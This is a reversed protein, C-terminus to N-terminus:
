SASWGVFKVSTSAGKYTENNHTPGTTSLTHVTGNLINVDNAPGDANGNNVNYTVKYKIALVDPGNGTTDYGWVAYVTENSDEILVTEIMSTPLVDDKTLIAIVRSSSWGVFKVDVLTGNSEKDVQEHTPKKTTNLPYEMQTLLNIDPDPGSGAIGGNIDYFISFKEELVDPIGNDNADEGWVAYVTVDENTLTVDDVFIPPIDDKDLVVNIISDDLTWGIFLTLTTHTYEPNISADLTHTGAPLNSVVIPDYINDISGGNLDYTLNYKPGSAYVFYVTGDNSVAESSPNGASLGSTTTTIPFDSGSLPLYAAEWMWGVASYGSLTPITKSYAGSSQLVSTTTTGPPNILTGNVDVYKETITYGEEYIFYVTLDGTVPNIIAPTGPYYTGSGLEGIRYGMPAYGSITPHIKSYAPSERLVFTVREGDLETESMDVYRETINWTAKNDGYAVIDYNNIPHDFDFVSSSTTRINPYTAVLTPIDSIVAGNAAYNSHFVAPASIDLNAYTQDITWIGGGDGEAINGSITGSTIVMVMSPNSLYVGGGSWSATNNIISGGALTLQGGGARVGGGSWATNGEITVNAPIVLDSKTFIGGGGDAENERIFINGTPAFTLSGSDNVFIGGGFNSAVNEVISGGTMTMMGATETALDPGEIFVGAGNTAENNRIEGGTMTMTGASGIFVGSGNFAKNNRITGGNMEFIGNAGVAVGGGYDYFSGNTSSNQIVAGDNMILKAIRGMFFHGSINVGGGQTDNGNGDLIINELTLQGEVTFHRAGTTQTITWQNGTDSTLTIIKNAPITIATYSGDTMDADNVTAVITYPNDDATCLRVADALLHETGILTGAAVNGDYVRYRELGNIDYNNLPHDYISSSTTRITPYLILANAPPVSPGYGALNDRFVVTDSINLSAYTDDTTWIGGGSKDATNNSITGNTINLTSTAIIGGGNEEATNNNITGNTITLTTAIIGGGNLTATNDSVTGGTMVMTAANVGGGGSGRNGIISGGALTLTGNVLHVGGGSGATNGEITVNAPIVLNISTNEETAIGGGGGIATNGKILINNNNSPSFTLDDSGTFIGGGLRAYNGSITGGTMTMTASPAVHVGGGTGAGLATNNRIEGGNMELIGKNGVEVGGGGDSLDPDSCSNQIVAGDNITMKAGGSGLILVGGGATANGNGDLIIDEITLEGEVIFHRSESTQKITRTNIPLYGEYSTLTINIGAPITIATNVGKTMDSDNETAVITYSTNNETCLAVADELLYRSGILTGTDADGDYVMYREYWWLAYLNFDRNNIYCLDGPEYANGGGDTETNWGLFRPKTTPGTIFNVLPDERSLVPVSFGYGTIYSVGSDQSYGTGPGGGEPHYHISYNPVLWVPLTANTNVSGILPSNDSVRVLQGILAGTVGTANNYLFENFNETATNGTSYAYCALDAPLTLTNM